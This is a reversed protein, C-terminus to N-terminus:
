NLRAYDGAAAFAPAAVGQSPLPQQLALWARLRPVGAVV